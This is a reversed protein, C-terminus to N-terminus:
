FTDDAAAQLEATADFPWEDVARALLARTESSTLGEAELSTELAERTRRRNRALRRSVTAEHEGVLRGVAALTMRQTYYCGLRLRDPAPLEALTRRLVVQLRAVRRGHGPDPESPATPPLARELERQETPVMRRAERIQDVHRQALVARVWTALTSRGHYYRFLSRPESSASAGRGVGYLEAYISDALDRGAADQGTIARGARYLAPRIELSTRRRPPLRM